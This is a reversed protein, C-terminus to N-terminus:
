RRRAAEAAKAEAVRACEELATATQSKWPRCAALVRRCDDAWFTWSDYLCPLEGSRAIALYQAAMQEDTGCVPLPLRGPRPPAAPTAGTPAPPTEKAAHAAIPEPAPGWLTPASADGKRSRPRTM